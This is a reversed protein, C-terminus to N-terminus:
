DFMSLHFVAAWSCVYVCVYVYVCIYLTLIVYVYFWYPMTVIM